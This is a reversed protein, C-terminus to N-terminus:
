DRQPRSCPGVASTADNWGRTWWTKQRESGANSSYQSAFTSGIAITAEYSYGAGAMYVGVAYNSADTYESYFMGDDRQFDYTGFQGVAFQAAIPNQWNAQGAAYIKGFNAYPPANFSTGDGATVLVADEPV